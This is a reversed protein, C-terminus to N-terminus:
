FHSVLFHLPTNFFILNIALGIVIDHIEVSKSYCITKRSLRKVRTRLVLNKREITQTNNKCIIHETEHLYRQYSGWDDTYFNTIDFPKLLEKFKIFVEDKRKGFM